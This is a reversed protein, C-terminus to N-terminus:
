KKLILEFQLQSNTSIPQKSQSEGPASRNISTNKKRKKNEEVSISAATRGPSIFGEM